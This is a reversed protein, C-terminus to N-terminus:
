GSQPAVEVAFAIAGFEGAWSEQPASYAPARFEGSAPLRVLGYILKYKGPRAPATLDFEWQTREDPAVADRLWFFNWQRRTGTSFDVWRAVLRVRNEGDGGTQWSASGRNWGSFAVKIKQGPAMRAPTGAVDFQASFAEGTAAPAAGDVITNDIPIIPPTQGPMAVSGSATNASDPVRMPEIPVISIPTIPPTKDPTAVSPEVPPPAMSTPSTLSPVPLPIPSQIPPFLPLDADGLVDGFADSAPANGGPTDAGFVNDTPIPLPSSPPPLVVTGSAPQAGSNAPEVPAPIPPLADLPLPLRVRLLSQAGGGLGSLSLRVSWVGRARQPPDWFALVREGRANLSPAAPPVLAIPEWRRPKEGQGVELVVTSNAAGRLAGIIAIGRSAARAMTLQALPADYSTTKNGIFDDVILRLGRKASALNAVLAGRNEPATQAVPAGGTQQGVQAVSAGKQVPLMPLLWLARAGNPSSDNPESSNPADFALTEGDPAPAPRRANETANLVRLGSGDRAVLYLHPPEKAATKASFVIGNAGLFNAEGGGGIVLQPAPQALKVRYLGRAEPALSEILLASNDLWIPRRARNVVPTIQLQDRGGFDRMPATFVGTQAGRGGAFAVFKADPSVQPSQCFRAGDSLATWRSGTLDLRVIQAVRALQSSDPAIASPAIASPATASPATATALVNSVCVLARDGPLPDPQEAYRPARLDTVPLARWAPFRSSDQPDPFARWINRTGNRELTFFVGGGRKEWAVDSPVGGLPAGDPALIRLPRPAGARPLEGSNM